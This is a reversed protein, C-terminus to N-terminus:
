DTEFFDGKQKMIKVRSMLVPSLLLVVVGSIGGAVVMWFLPLTSLFLGGLAFGITHSVNVISFGESKRDSPIEKEVALARVTMLPAVSVGIIIMAIVSFFFSHFLSLILCGLIIFFLFLSAQFRHSLSIKYSFLAYCLGSVASCIALISILLAALSSHVGLYQVIPLAGVEATGLAHGFAISLLIWFIFRRNLWWLRNSMILTQDEKAQNNSPEEGEIKKTLNYTLLASISTILVMAIIAGPAWYIGSWAAILPSAVVVLEIITADLALASPLMKSPVTRSLLSRMAGPVGAVLAGALGALVIFIPNSEYLISLIFIGLFATATLLLLFPIGKNLGIRDIWRGGPVAFLTFCLTYATLMLGGITNEGILVFAFSSM